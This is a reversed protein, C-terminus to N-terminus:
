STQNVVVVSIIILAAGIALRWDLTEGLVIVGLVLGVLPFIYTV